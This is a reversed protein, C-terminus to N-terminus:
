GAILQSCLEEVSLCGNLKVQAKTAFDEDLLKFSLPRTKYHFNNIADIQQQQMREYRCNEPIFRNPM